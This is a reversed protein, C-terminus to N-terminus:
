KGSEWDGSRRDDAGGYVENNEYDIVLGQVGGFYIPSQIRVSYGKSQLQAITEPTFREEEISIMNEEVFFRPDDIAKQMPYEYKLMRVLVETLSVPIRSGGPSGIGIVPKGDKALITPATFSRPRKGPEPYNPSTPTQSFNRLQNNLFFGKVYHGSGFFNSLTNTTSVMMGDEDVVVFHTTNGHDEEETEDKMIHDTSLSELSIDSALQKSYPISTLKDSDVKEFDPDGVNLIRDHYARKTIENILHMYDTMDTDKNFKLIEAMQLSQILTVGALPPPASWVDYGAFKGRVSPQIDVEYKNLDENKIYPVEKKLAQAVEGDYFSKAGGKQIKELTGGLEKQILLGGTELPQGKPYMHPLEDVPMRYQANSLISHMTSNIEFGSNALNVSPQIIDKMPITGFREHAVDMGKVMGPTGIGNDSVYGSYPVTERYDITVPDSGDTPYVLMAGGGGIGSGYPEVVTLAYAVAIAADVANGGEELVKMGVDVALPHGASVGYGFNSTEEEKMHAVQKEQKNVILGYEYAYILGLGVVVSISM